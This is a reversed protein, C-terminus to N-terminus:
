TAATTVPGCCTTEAGGGGECQRALYPLLFEPLPVTRRKHAKPTGIHIQKRSQVANESITARRDPWSGCAM